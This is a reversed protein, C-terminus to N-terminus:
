SARRIPQGHENYEYHYRGSIRIGERGPARNASAIPGISSRTALASTSSLFSKSCLHPKKWQTHGTVDLM